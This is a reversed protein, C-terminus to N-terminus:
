NNDARERIYGHKIEPKLVINAELTLAQYAAEISKGCNGNLYGRTKICM